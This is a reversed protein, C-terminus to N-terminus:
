NYILYIRKAGTTDYLIAQKTITKKLTKILTHSTVNCLYIKTIKFLVTSLKRHVHM